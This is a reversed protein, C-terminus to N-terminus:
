DDRLLPERVAAYEEILARADAPVDSFRVGFGAPFDDSL